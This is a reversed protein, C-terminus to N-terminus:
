DLSLVSCIKKAKFVSLRGETIEAQLEPVRRATRAVQILAYAVAETLGLADVAYRFLSPHDFHRYVEDRDIQQLTEIFRAECSRFERAVQIASDHLSQIHSPIM